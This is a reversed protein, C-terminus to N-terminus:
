RMLFSSFWPGLTVHLTTQSPISLLTIEHYTSIVAAQILRPFWLDHMTGSLHGGILFCRWLGTAQSKRKMQNGATTWAPCSPSLLSCSLPFPTPSLSPSLHPLFPSSSSPLSATAPLGTLFTSQSGGELAHGQPMVEVDLSRFIRPAAPPSGASCVM